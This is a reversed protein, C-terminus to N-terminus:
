GQGVPLGAVDLAIVMISFVFTVTPTEIVAEAFGTQAPVETIKVAVGTLGPDDGTYSHFTFPVM